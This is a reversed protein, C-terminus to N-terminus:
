LRFHLFTSTRLHFSRWFLFVQLLARRHKRNLSIVTSRILPSPPSSHCFCASLILLHSSLSLFSAFIHSSFLFNVVDRMCIAKSYMKVFKGQEFHQFASPTVLLAFLCSLSITIKTLISNASPSARLVFSAIVISVIRSPSPMSV